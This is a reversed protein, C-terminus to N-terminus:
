TRPSLAAPCLTRCEEYPSAIKGFTTDYTAGPKYFPGTIPEGTLPHPTKDRVLAKADPTGQSFLKGSGHGLLEHIGVQTCPPPLLTRAHTDTM